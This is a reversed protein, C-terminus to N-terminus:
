VLRRFSTIGALLGGLMVLAAWPVPVAVTPVPVEVTSTQLSLLYDFGLSDNPALDGVLHAQAGAVWFDSPDTDGYTATIAIDPPYDGDGPDFFDIGNMTATEINIHSGISPKGAVHNDGAGRDGYFDSDIAIPPASTHFTLVDFHEIGPPPNGAIAGPICEAPDAFSGNVGDQGIVTTDHVFASDFGFTDTAAAPYPRDDKLSVLSVLGHIMQVISLDTIPVGSINTYEYNQVMVYENSTIPTVLVSAESQATMGMQIGAAGNDVMESTIKIELDANGITSEFVPLGFSNFGLLALPTVVTFNSNTTWDPFIFDPELWIPAVPVGDRVYAVAHAYEGSLYERGRYNVGDIVRLDMLVDSYGHDTLIIGWDPNALCMDAARASQSLVALVALVLVASNNIVSKNKKSNM